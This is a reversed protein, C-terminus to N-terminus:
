QAEKLGIAGEEDYVIERAKVCRLHNIGGSLSADQYFLWWKREFEVVSHHTTRGVVPELITGRYMFPGLPSKGTAYVLLHTDGMSYSFCYIGKFKLMWSAEFFRM